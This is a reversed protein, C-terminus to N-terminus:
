PVTFFLDILNTMSIPHLNKMEQVNQITAYLAIHLVSTLYCFGQVRAHYARELRLHVSIHHM